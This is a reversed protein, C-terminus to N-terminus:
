LLKSNIRKKKTLVIFGDDTHFVIVISFKKKQMLYSLYKLLKKM